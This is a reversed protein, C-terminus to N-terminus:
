GVTDQARGSWDAGRTKTPATPGTSRRKSRCRTEREEIVLAREADSLSRFRPPPMKQPHSDPLELRVIAVDREQRSMTDLTTANFRARSLSQDLRSNHCQSCMHVLIGRGDLGPKPRISMSSLLDDRVILRIDPLQDHPLTGAMVSRYAAIMAETKNPDTQDVGFYPPPIALGQV